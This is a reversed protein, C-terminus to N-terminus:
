CASSRGSGRRPPSRSRVDVATRPHLARAAVCAAETTRCPARGSGSVAIVVACSRAEEAHGIELWRWSDAGSPSEAVRWSAVRRVRSGAPEVLESLSSARTGLPGENTGRPQRVLATTRAPRDCRDCLSQQPTCRTQERNAPGLRRQRLTAPPAPLQRCATSAALWARQPDARRPRPDRLAPSRAHRRGQLYHRPKPQARRAGHRRLPLPRGWVEPRLGGSIHM